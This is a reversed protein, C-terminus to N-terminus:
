QKYIFIGLYNFINQDGKFIIKTISLIPFKIKLGHWNATLINM